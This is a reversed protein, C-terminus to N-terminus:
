FQFTYMILNFSARVKILHLTSKEYQNSIFPLPNLILGYKWYFFRSAIIVLAIM